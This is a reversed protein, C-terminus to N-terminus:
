YTEGLIRFFFVLFIFHYVLVIQRNKWSLRRICTRVVYVQIGQHTDKPPTGWQWCRELQVWLFHEVEKIGSSIPDPFPTEQLCYHYFSSFMLPFVSMVSDLVFSGEFLSLKVVMQPLWHRICTFYFTNLEQKLLKNQTTVKFAVMHENKLTLYCWTNLIM